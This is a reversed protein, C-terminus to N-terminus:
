AQRPEAGSGQGLLGVWICGAGGVKLARIMEEGHKWRGGNSRILNSAEREREADLLRAPAHKSWHCLAHCLMCSQKCAQLHPLQGWMLGAEVDFRSELLAGARVRTAM